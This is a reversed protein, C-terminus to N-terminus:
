LLILGIGSIIALVAYVGLQLVGLDVHAFMAGPIAGDSEGDEEDEGDGEEDEDDGGGGGGGGSGGEDEDGGDSSPVGTVEGDGEEGAADLLGICSDPTEVVPTLTAQGDFDCAEAIEDEGLFYRNLAFSLQSRSNCMGYVGYEGAEPDAAIGDCVGDGLGCVTEFLDEYDDPDVSDSVVCARSNAMCSCLQRNPTPPLPSAVAEWNSGTRPCDRLDTNTPEYEDMDVGRPSIRAMQRKLNDFDRLRTARGNEIEVLGAVITLKNNSFQVKYFLIYPSLNRSVTNMKRKLTCICSVVLGYM